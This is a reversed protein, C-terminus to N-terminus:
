KWLGKNCAFCMETKSSLCRETSTFDHEENEHLKVPKGSLFMAPVFAIAINGCLKSLPEVILGTVIDENWAWTSQGVTPVSLVCPSQHM